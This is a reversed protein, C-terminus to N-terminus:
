QHQNISIKPQKSINPHKVTRLRIEYYLVFSLLILILYYIRHHYVWCSLEVFAISKWEMSHLHSLLLNISQGSTQLVNEYAFDLGKTLYIHYNSLAIEFFFALILFLALLQLLSAVIFKM